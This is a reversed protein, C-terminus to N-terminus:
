DGLTFGAAPGICRGGRDARLLGGVSAASQGPIPDAMLYRRHPPGEEALAISPLCRVRRLFRPLFSHFPLRQASWGSSQACTAGSIRCRLPLPAARLDQEEPAASAICTIRPM